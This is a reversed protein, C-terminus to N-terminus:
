RVTGEVVAEVEAQSTRPTGDQTVGAVPRWTEDLADVVNAWLPTVPVTVGTSASAKAADLSRFAPAVAPDDLVGVRSPTHQPGTALAQLSTASTLCAIAEFAEARDRASAPVALGVGALPAVAATGDVPYAAARLDTQVGALAPDSIASTSALLFGGGAGAFRTLADRSPGPGVGADDYLEVVSAAARGAATDLGVETARGAGGLLSGGSGAVLANVWEALGSGDRDEIEVSVGLRQAGAVLDDWTIPQTTDLGAREATTGRFWLVQPDLFWPAAVLRGDWTAAALAAPTVGESLTAAQAAPVPALVGAAALEATSATDLSLLDMSEDDALLRQVLESRRAGVDAPLQEVEIRYRGQAADNCTGALTEADLRDPGVYWSVVPLYRAPSSGSGCAALLACAVAAAAVSTATRRQRRSARRGPAM